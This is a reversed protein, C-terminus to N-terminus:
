NAYPMFIFLCDRKGSMHYSEVYRHYTRLFVRVWMSVHTIKLILHNAKFPFVLWIISGFFM